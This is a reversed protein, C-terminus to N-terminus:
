AEVKSKQLKKATEAVLQGYEKALQMEADTPKNMPDDKSAETPIVATAGYPTGYQARDATIPGTNSVVVMGHHQMPTQLARCLNELVGHQTTTTAFVGGAKGQLAGTFWLQGLGALFTAMKPNPEGFIGGSGWIIGAADRLEDPDVDEVSKFTVDAGDVEKAGEALASGLFETHGFMSAYLVMVKM